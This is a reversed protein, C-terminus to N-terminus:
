FQGQIFPLLLAAYNLKSDTEAGGRHVGVVLLKNQDTAVVIPSGSSGGDTDCDYGISKGTISDCTCMPVHM